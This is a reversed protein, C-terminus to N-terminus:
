RWRITCRSQRWASARRAAATDGRAGAGSRSLGPRGARRPRRAHPARAHDRRPRGDDAAVAPRVGDGGGRIPTSTSSPWRRSTARRGRPAAWSWWRARRRRRDGAAASDGAGPQDAARRVGADARGARGDRARDPLRRWGARRQADIGAASGRGDRGRWALPKRRQRGTLRGIRETGGGSCRRAGLWDLVRLTNRTTLELGVNGAVTIAAELRIRPHGVAVALALADDVGTDVDM